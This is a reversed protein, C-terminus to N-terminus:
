LAGANKESHARRNESLRKSKHILDNIIQEEPKKITSLDTVYM